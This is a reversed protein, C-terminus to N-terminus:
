GSPGSSGTRTSASPPASTPIRTTATASTRRGPTATPSARPMSTSFAAAARARVVGGTTPDRTSRSSTSRSSRRRAWGPGCCWAMAPSNPAACTRTPGGTTRCGTCRARRNGAVPPSRRTRIPRTPPGCRTNPPSPPMVGCAPASIGCCGRRSASNRTPVRPRICVARGAARPSSAGSAGTTWPTSIGSDRRPNARSPPRCRM